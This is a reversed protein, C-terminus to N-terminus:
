VGQFQNTCECVSEFQIGAVFYGKAACIQICQLASTVTVFSYYSFSTGSLGAYSGGSLQTDMHICGMHGPFQLEMLDQLDQLYMIAKQALLELQESLVLLELQELLETLEPLVLLVL